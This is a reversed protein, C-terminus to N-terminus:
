SRATGGGRSSRASLEAQLRRAHGTAGIAAFLRLADRLEAEDARLRGLEERIFPEYTTAGTDRVLALAARLDAEARDRGGPAEAARVARARALRAACEFVQAGQATAVAVAEDAAALAAEPRSRGLEALALHTLLDADFLPLGRSRGEELARHAVDCVARWRGQVLEAIAVSALALLRMLANGSDEAVNVAEDARAVSEGDDEGTYFALRSSISLARLILESESRERALAMARDTSDRVEALRGMRALLEARALLGAGIASYGVRAVGVDADGDCHEIARDALRLGEALQGTWAGCWVGLMIGPEGLGDAVRAAEIMMGAGRGLEGLAFKRTGSVARILCELVPDGLRNAMELGEALLADGEAVALGTRVGWQALLSRTTIGLRLTEETEATQALHALVARWRRMSEGVDSRLAWTAARANWRAAELDDGAQDFHAAVLAARENLRDPEAEIIARAVAAHLQVRRGGLLTGYAVEQTLPHWFRYEGGPHGDGEQLLEARCLARLADDLPEGALGTVKALVTQSFSRGIVGATQLVGKHEAPLRDIRAALVAQVSPPVKVHHLPQTLRFSGPTGALTGDEVLARVVEEVFFPNGGTRELVFAVLPALSLDVGLLGGLLEGVGKEGLPALPLQRYYSHRMWSASFEPRFNAVVLTKSGPLSEILRELFAESQPDFWHLDEAVLILVEQESGRRTVQRLTEFIRRMRVEPALKPVPRGPDPVELFDYILPLAEELAPDLHVLRGAIKERAQDPSDAETISFYQRLLALIPLLPIDRGHSVGATRRVTVDGAAASRAFEECLRSKGVGAEGVIGVVQARGEAAAALAEELAALERERGILASTGVARDSRVGSSPAPGELAFVRVPERAGKVVMPGLDALGFWGEVLRATNESLHVRGPQALAEMRQALGVTHGLATPDLQLDDGVRGVVVEGSNLGLRLHLDVGESRLEQAYTGVARTLHWAAHCARRAHDEQAIPAGFLAMIGDGTFKDVTGGFRRVGEALIQVLRGMIGAWAEPDLNEQLDMSGQVDAFLVTLQKREASETHGPVPSFSGATSVADAVLRGGCDGCFRAKPENAGGCAPCLPATLSAGCEICFRRGERNETGCATCITTM